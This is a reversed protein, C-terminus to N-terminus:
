IPLSGSSRSPRPLVIKSVKGLDETGPAEHRRQRAEEVV